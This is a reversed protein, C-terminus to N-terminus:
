RHLEVRRQLQNLQAATFRGPEDVVLPEAEGRGEAQVRGTYGSTLLADRVAEARRRSLLRNYEAGGQPDTHGLLTIAPSGDGRLTELLDQVAARGKATFEVSNFKFEIPLAVKKPVFGRIGATAPAAPQSPAIPAAQPAQTETDPPTAAAPTAAPVAAPVATTSRPQTPLPVYEGALLRAQETRHWLREIVDPPPAEPTAATDQILALAQQYHRSAENFRSRDRAIDGLWARPRWREAYHLAAILDAEFTELPQGAAMGQLVQQELVQAVMRGFGARFTPDCSPDGLAQDALDRLQHIDNAARAAEAKARLGTCGTTAAASPDGGAMVGVMVTAVLLTVPM